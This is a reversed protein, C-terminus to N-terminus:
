NYNVTPSHINWLWINLQNEIREWLLRISLIGFSYASVCSSALTPKNSYKSDQHLLMLGGFIIIFSLVPIKKQSYFWSCHLGLFMNKAYYQRMNGIKQEKKWKEHSFANKLCSQLAFCGFAPRVICCGYTKM